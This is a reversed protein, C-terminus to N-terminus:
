MKLLEYDLDFYIFLQGTKSSDTEDAYDLSYTGSIYKDNTDHVEFSIKPDLWKPGGKSDKSARILINSRHKQSYFPINIANVINYVPNGSKSFEMDISSSRLEKSKDTLLFNFSFSSVTQGFDIYESYTPLDKGFKGGIEAKIVNRNLSFGEKILFEQEDIKLYIVNKGKNKHKPEEMEKKCSTCMLLVCFTISLFIKLQFFSLKM